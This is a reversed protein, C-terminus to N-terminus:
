EYEEREELEFEIPQFGAGKVLIFLDAKQSNLLRSDTDTM